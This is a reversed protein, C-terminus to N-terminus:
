NKPETMTSRRTTTRTPPTAREAADRALHMDAADWHAGASEGPQWPAADFRAEPLMVNLEPVAESALTLLVHTGQYEVGRM